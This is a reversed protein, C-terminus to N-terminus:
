GETSSSAQVRNRESADPDLADDIVELLDRNYPDVSAKISIRRPRALRIRAITRDVRITPRATNLHTARYAATIDEYQWVVVIDSRASSATEQGDGGGGCSRGGGRPEGFEDAYPESQRWSQYTSDATPGVLALSKGAALWDIITATSVTTAAPLVIVDADASESTQEVSEPVSLSLQESVM